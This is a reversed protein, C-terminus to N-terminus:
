GFLSSHSGLDVLVLVLLANDKKYILLVDPRIHCERYGKWPGILAHDAHKTPLPTGSALANIVTELETTDFTGSRAIRKFARKYTRTVVIHYM